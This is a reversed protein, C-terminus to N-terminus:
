SYGMQLINQGKLNNSYKTNQEYKNKKRMTHKLIGEFYRADQGFDILQQSFQNQRLSISRTLEIRHQQARTKPEIKKSCFM